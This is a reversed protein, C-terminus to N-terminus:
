LRDVWQRGSLELLGASQPVGICELFRPHNLLLGYEGVPEAYDSARYTTNRFACGPGLSREELFPGKRALRWRPVMRERDITRGTTQPFAPMRVLQPIVGNNASPLPVCAYGVAPMAESIINPSPPRPVVVEPAESEEPIDPLGPDMEQSTETACEGLRACIEDVDIGGDDDPFVFPAFGPPPPMESEPSCTQLGDGESAPADEDTVEVVPKVVGAFRGGHM